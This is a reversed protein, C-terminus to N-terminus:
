GAVGPARGGETGGGARQRFRAGHREGGVAVARAELGPELATEDIEVAPDVVRAQHHQVRARRRPGAPPPPPPPATRLTVARASTFAAPGQTFLRSSCSSFTWDGPFTRSTFPLWM